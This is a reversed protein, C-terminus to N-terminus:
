AAAKKVRLLLCPWKARLGTGRRWWLSVSRVESALALAPAYWRAGPFDPVVLTCAVSSCGKLKDVVAGVLKWPPAAYANEGEWSQLMANEGEAKGAGLMSYYRPLKANEDSAFLDISHPGYLAEVLDFGRKGLEWEADQKFRSLSDAPNAASKVLRPVVTIDHGDCLHFIKRLQVMLEPSRSVWSKTGYFTASNDVVVEVVKGEVLPLFERLGLRVGATERYMIHQSAMHQGWFGQAKMVEGESRYIAGWGVDSADTILSADAAPAWIFSGNWRAPFSALARVDKVAQHSLKVKGAWSAKVKLSDYLGQAFLRGGKFALSICVSLGAMRAALRAPVWRGERGVESLVLKACARIKEIKAPPIFFKGQLTDVILGLHQKVRELEWSSKEPHYKLGLFELLAKVDPVAREGEEEERFLLLFDDLLVRHRIGTPLSFGENGLSFAPPSALWGGVERSMKMFWHPSGSWGFPLAVHIYTVGQVRFGFYVQFDEHIRLHFYGDQLDFSSMLDGAQVSQSLSYIHDFQTPYDICHFNFPRMDIVGRFGWTAKPVMFSENIYPAEEPEVVKIAGIELYRASLEEWAKLPEGELWLEGMDYPKPERVLEPKVGFEIAELLEPSAGLERWRDVRSTLEFWLQGM